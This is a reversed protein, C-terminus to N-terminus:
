GKFIEQVMNGKYNKLIMLNEGFGWRKMGKHQFPCQNRHNQKTKTINYIDHQEYKPTQFVVKRVNRSFIIENNM